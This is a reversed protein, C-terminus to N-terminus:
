EKSACIEAVSASNLPHELFIESFDESDPFLAKMDVEEPACRQSLAFCERMAYWMCGDLRKEKPLFDFDSVWLPQGFEATVKPFHLMKGKEKIFEANRVTAPLIPVKAMRAILAAGAHIEPVRDSKGRRTGEPMVAVVEGNKLYGAARKISSLDASDRNVPFVGVRALFWGLIKPKGDFLTNRAMFRPWAVPRIALYLFIVDLFSTHNAVVMVGTKQCLEALVRRQDVSFRFLPTLVARVLGVAFTAVGKPVPKESSHGGFPRDWFRQYGKVEARPSKTTKPSQSM